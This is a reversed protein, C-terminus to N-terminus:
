SAPCRQMVAMEGSLADITLLVDNTLPLYTAQSTARALISRAPGLKQSEAKLGLYAFTGELDTAEALRWRTALLIDRLHIAGLKPDDRTVTAAFFDDSSFAIDVAVKECAQVFKKGGDLFDLAAPWPAVVWRGPLLKFVEGSNGLVDYDKGLSAPNGLLRLLLARPDVATAPDLGDYCALREAKGFVERCSKLTEAAFASAGLTVIMLFALLSLRM